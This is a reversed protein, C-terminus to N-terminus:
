TIPIDVQPARIRMDALFAERNVPSILVVKAPGYKIEIRRLSLAPSSLPNRTPRISRIESYLVDTRMVGNRIVLRDSKAEYFTPVVVLRYIVLIVAAIAVLFPRRLYIAFGIYLLPAAILIAALWLDVKSRYTM